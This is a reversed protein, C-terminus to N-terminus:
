DLGFLYNANRYLINAVDVLPLKKIESIKKVSEIVFTPENKKDKFPSLFPSDTETLLLNMPTEKVIRKFHEDRVVTTPISLYWQNERIKKILSKKGGFCHMIIKRYDYEELINIVEAEAKRSHVVLPLDNKVAIEIMKRFIKEQEKKNSDTKFDLGVEAIGNINKINDKIFKIEEEVDYNKQEGTETTLADPPYIGITPFIIDPYKGKLELVYKNTEPDVGAPIVRVENEKARKLVEDVDDEFFTKDLHCHVDVFKM